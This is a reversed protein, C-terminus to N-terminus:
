PFESFDQSYSVLRPNTWGLTSGFPWKGEMELRSVLWLRLKKGFEQSALGLAVFVVGSKEVLTGDLCVEEMSVKFLKVSSPEEKMFQWGWKALLAINKRRLGGIGLGGDAQSRVTM